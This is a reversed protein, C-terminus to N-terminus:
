EATLIKVRTRSTGDSSLAASVLPFLKNFRAAVTWPPNIAILGSGTM